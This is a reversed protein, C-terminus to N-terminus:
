NIKPNNNLQISKFRTKYFIYSRIYDFYRKPGQWLSEPSGTGKASNEM